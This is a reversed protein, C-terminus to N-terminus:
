IMEAQVQVIEQLQNLRKDLMEIYIHAKELEELMGQSRAGLEIVAEGDQSYQGKGIAPLHKHEWM